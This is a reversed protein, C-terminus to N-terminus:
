MIEKPSISFAIKVKSYIYKQYYKQYHRLSINQLMSNNIRLVQLIPSVSIEKPTIIFAIKM